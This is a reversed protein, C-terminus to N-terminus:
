GRTGAAEHTAGHEIVAVGESHRGMQIWKDASGTYFTVVLSRTETHHKISALIHFQKMLKEAM